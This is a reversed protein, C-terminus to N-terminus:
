PRKIAPQNPNGPQPEPKSGIGGATLYALEGYRILMPVSYRRKEIQTKIRFDKEKRIRVRITKGSM